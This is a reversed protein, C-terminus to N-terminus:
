SFTMDARDRDAIRLPSTVRSLTLAAAVRLLNVDGTAAALHATLSRDSISCDDATSCDAISLDGGNVRDDRASRIFDYETPVVGFVSKCSLVVEVVTNGGDVIVVVSLERVCSDWVL